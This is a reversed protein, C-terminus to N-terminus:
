QPAPRQAPSQSKSWGSELIAREEEDPNSANFGPAHPQTASAANDGSALTRHVTPSPSRTVSQAAAPAGNAAVPPSVIGARVPVAESIPALPRM